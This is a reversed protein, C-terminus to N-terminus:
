QFVSHQLDRLRGGQKQPERCKCGRGTGLDARLFETEFLRGREGGEGDIPELRFSDSTEIPGALLQDIRIGSKNSKLVPRLCPRNFLLEQGRKWAIDLRM